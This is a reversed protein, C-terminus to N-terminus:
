LLRLNCRFGGNVGYSHTFGHLRGQEYLTMVFAETVGAAEAVALVRAAVGGLTLKVLARKVEFARTDLLLGELQM